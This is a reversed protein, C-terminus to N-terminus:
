KEFYKSFEESDKSRTCRLIKYAINTATFNSYLMTILIIQRIVNNKIFLVLSIDIIIQSIIALIKMTKRKNKNLVPVEETDSPAYKLIVYLSFLNVLVLGIYFVMDNLQIYKSILAPTIFFISSFIFCTINTRAHAGGLFTKYITAILLVIGVEKLIGLLISIVFILVYKPTDELVRTVGFMMIERQDSDIDEDKYLMNDVIYSSM